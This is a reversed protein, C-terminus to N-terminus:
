KKLVKKYLYRYLPLNVKLLCLAALKAKSSVKNQFIMKQNEAIDNRLLKAYEKTREDHTSSAIKYGTSLYGDLLNDVAFDSVTPYEIKIKELLIKRQLVNDYQQPNFSSNVISESNALYFYGVEDTVVLKHAQKLADYSLMVDEYLVGEPFRVTQFVSARYVKNWVYFEIGNYKFYLELMEEKSTTIRNLSNLTNLTGDPNVRTVNCVAIDAQNEELYGILRQYMDKETYDDSDMFAIYEGHVQNLGANRAASPGANEQHIVRVRTDKEALRDCINATNDTSGDNIIILEFDSINQSLVSQVSKEVTHEVNYAPMIFSLVTM